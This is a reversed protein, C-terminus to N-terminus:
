NETPLEIRDIVLVEVPGKRSEVRLGLQEEIATYISPGSSDPDQVAQDRSWNLDASFNGKLGSGDVVTRGMLKSLSAAIDPWPRDRAAWHGVGFGGVAISCPPSEGARM